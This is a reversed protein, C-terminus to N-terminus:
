KALRFLRLQRKAGVPMFIPTEIELDGVTLFAM